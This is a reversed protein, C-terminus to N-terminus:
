IQGSIPRSSVDYFGFPIIKRWEKEGATENRVILAGSARDVKVTSGGYPNPILYRLTSTTQFTQGNIQARCTLNYPTQQPKLGSIDFDLLNGLTNIPVDGGTLYHEDDAWVDIRM